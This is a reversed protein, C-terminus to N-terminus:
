LIILQPDRQEDARYSTARDYAVIAAVALDIKRPSDKHDKQVKPGAPTLKTVCNGVHRALRPDGDHEVLGDMVADYFRATAPIMRTNSQPYEVVPLGADAWAAMDRQWRYPDAAIELVRWRQCASLVATEVESPDVRWGPAADQPREWLEVVQLRGEPTCAVLATCDGSFSGDFGLVVDAGEPLPPAAVERAEWAGAPLWAAQTSVWQNLRKTRYENEPTSKVASEFDDAFLFDGFAPNAARWVAPDTHDAGDPAAWWRMFFSPDDVEGSLVRNGYQWLGYCLSDRGTSDYRVGATTIGLMLPHERAGMALSFVDWLERNPQAHVEDFIVLSPSLGEKTYAEASVVKYRSDTAPHVLFDRYVKIAKSLSPDLEVMRRAMGFVIRAQERDAAVSYVEAGPEDDAILGYLAIGSALASKGNKRPLGVLARRYPRATLDTLLARQWPRMVLLQGAGKGKTVRGFTEIFRILRDGAGPGYTNV